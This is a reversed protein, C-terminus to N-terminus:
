VKYGVKCHALPVLRGNPKEGDKLPDSKAQKWSYGVGGEAVIPLNYSTTPPFFHHWTMVEAILNLMDEAAREDCFYILEDHIQLIWRVKALVLQRRIKELKRAYDRLLLRHSVPMQLKQTVEYDPNICKPDLRIISAKLLDQGSGQVVNNSLTTEAKHVAYRDDWNIDNLWRRRGTLLKVYGHKQHHKLLEERYEHVRYYVQNYREKYQRAVPVETPVGEETLKEALMYEMGGYLMLFNLQKATPNRAVSFENATNTHIDGTPSSLIREMAPDKSLIAMVRIELQAYDLDLLAMGKPARFCEKLGYTDAQSPIQMLNPNSAGFRGTVASVTGMTCHIRENSEVFYPLGSATPNESKGVYTGQMKALARYVLLDGVIPSSSSMRFLAKADLRVAGKKTKFPMPVKNRLFMKQLQPGSNLNIKGGAAKYLKRLVKEIDIELQKRIVALRKLDFPFGRRMARMTAYLVPLEHYKIWARKFPTLAETSVVIDGCPMPNRVKLFSGDERLYPILAPRAVKGFTQMQYIEDTVIVDEEAYLAVEDMREMSVAEYGMARSKKSMHLSGLLRGYFNARVKLGKEVTVDAMWCGIMTCYINPWKKLSTSFTLMNVDYNANHFVKVKEPNEVHPRLIEAYDEMSPFSPDFLNTPFSYSEGRYCLSWIKVRARGYVLADDKDYQPAAVTETDLTFDSHSCIRNIVARAHALTKVIM